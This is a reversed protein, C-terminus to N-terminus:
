PSQVDVGGGPDSNYGQVLTACAWAINVLEQAKLRCLAGACLAGGIRRAFGPHLRFWGVARSGGGM